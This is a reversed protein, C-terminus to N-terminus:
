GGGGVRAGMSKFLLSVNNREVGLNAPSPAYSRSKNRMANSLYQKLERTYSGFSYNSRIIQLRFSAACRYIWEKCGTGSFM